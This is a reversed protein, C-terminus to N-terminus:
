RRPQSRHDLITPHVAIRFLDGEQCSDPRVLLRANLAKLDTTGMGVGPETRTSRDNLTIPIVKVEYRQDSGARGMHLISAPAVPSSGAMRMPVRSM